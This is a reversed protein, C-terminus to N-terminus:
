VHLWGGEPPHLTIVKVNHDERTIAEKGCVSCHNRKPDISWWGGHFEVNQKLKEDYRGPCVYTKLIEM